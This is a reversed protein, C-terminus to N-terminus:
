ALPTTNYNTDAVGADANLKTALATGWAAIKAQNSALFAGGANVDAFIKQLTRIQTTNFGFYNDAM